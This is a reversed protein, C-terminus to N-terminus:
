QVLHETFYQMTIPQNFLRVPRGRRRCNLFCKFVNGESAQVGQHGIEILM